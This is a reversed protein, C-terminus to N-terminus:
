SPQPLSESRPRQCDTVELAVFRFRSFQPSPNFLQSLNLNFFKPVRMPCLGLFKAGLIV